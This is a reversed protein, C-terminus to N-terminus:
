FNSLRRTFLRPAVTFESFSPACGREELVMTYEGAAFAALSFVYTGTRVARYAVLQGNQNYIKLMAKGETTVNVSVQNTGADMHMREIVGATAFNSAFVLAIAVLATSIINRLKM